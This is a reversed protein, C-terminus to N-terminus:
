EGAEDPGEDAGVEEVGDAGLQGAGGFAEYGVVVEGDEDEAGLEAGDVVDDLEALRGVNDPVLRFM